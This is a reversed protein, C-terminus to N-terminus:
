VAVEAEAPVGLYAERVVPDRQIQEPTGEAILRGLNLASIRHSISFVIDMKHEILLITYKSGLRKLLQVMEHTAEPSLGQTPEDLLLMSPSTALTIGVELMRQQGHSLQNACADIKHSLGVEELVELVRDRLRQIAPRQWLFSLPGLYARSYAAAWVNEFVTLRPFLSSHQFSRCLGFHPMRHVPEHTLDHGDFLIQGSSPRLEGGILSFLTTKGAGNPGILSHITGAEVSLDVDEVATLGDFSKTLKHTQLVAM